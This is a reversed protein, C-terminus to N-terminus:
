LAPLALPRIESDSSSRPSRATTRSDGICFAKSTPDQALSVAFDVFPRQGSTPWSRASSRATRPLSRDCNPRSPMCFRFSPLRRSVKRIPVGSPRSFLLRDVFAILDPDAADFFVEVSRVNVTCSVDNYAHGDFIAYSIANYDHPAQQSKFVAYRHRALGPDRSGKRRTM